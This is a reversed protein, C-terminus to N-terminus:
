RCIHKATPLQIFSTPNRYEEITNFFGRVRAYHFVIRKSVPDFEGGTIIQMVKSPLIIKYGNCNDNVEIKPANVSNSYEITTNDLPCPITLGFEPQGFLLACSDESKWAIDHEVANFDDGYSIGIKSKAKSTASIPIPCPVKLELEANRMDM